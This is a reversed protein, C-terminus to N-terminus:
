QHGHHCDSLFLLILLFNNVLNPQTASVSGNNLELVVQDGNQEKLEAAVFGATEDPVWVWKKADFVVDGGKAKETRLFASPDPDSM